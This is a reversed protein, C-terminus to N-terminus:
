EDMGKCVRKWFSGGQASVFPSASKGLGSWLASTTPPHPPPYSSSSSSFLNHPKKALDVPKTNFPEHAVGVCHFCTQLRGRGPLIRVPPPTSIVPEEARFALRLRKGRRIDRLTYITVTPFPGSLLDPSSSLQLTVRTKGLCAIIARGPHRLGFTCSRFCLLDSLSMESDTRQKETNLFLGYRKLLSRLTGTLLRNGGSFGRQSRAFQASLVTECFTSVLPM